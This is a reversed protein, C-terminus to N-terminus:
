RGALAELFEEVAKAKKTSTVRSVGFAQAIEPVTIVQGLAGMGRVWYHALGAAWSSSAGSEFPTDPLRALVRALQLCPEGSGLVPHAGFFEELATEIEALRRELWIPLPVEEALAEFEDVAERLDEDPSLLPRREVLLRTPHGALELTLSGRQTGALALTSTSRLAAEVWRLQTPSPCVPTLEGEMRWVVPAWDHGPPLCGLERLRRADEPNGSRPPDFTLATSPPMPAGPRWSRIALAADLSDYLALGHTQGGAGMIVACPRDGGLLEAAAEDGEVPSLVFCETGNVRHWPTREYFEVAAECLDRVHSDKVGPRKTWAPGPDVGQPRLSDSLDAFLPELGEGAPAARAEVGIAAFAGELSQLLELDLLVLQPRTPPGVEPRRMTAQCFEWVGEATPPKIGVSTGQIAGSDSVLLMAVAPAQEDEIWNALVTWGFRWCETGQPLARLGDLGRSSALVRPPEYRTLERESRLWALAGPVSAWAWGAGSAYVAAESPEGPAFFTPEEPALAGSLYGVVHPNVQCAQELRSRAAAEEGRAFHLLAQTYPLWCLGDDAFDECIKEALDYDGFQVALPAATSRAFLNDSTSLQLLAAFHELAEPSRRLEYLETALRMRARMYPRTERVGYFVGALDEFVGPGKDEILKREAAALAQRLLALRESGGSAALRALFLLAEYDDPDQRLAEQAEYIDDERLRDELSPRAQSLAERTTPGREATKSKQKRQKRKRKAQKRGRKSGM